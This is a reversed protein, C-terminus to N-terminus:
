TAELLMRVESRLAAVTERRGPKGFRCAGAQWGLRHGIRAHLLPLPTHPPATELLRTLAPLATLYDCGGAPFRAGMRRDFASSVAAPSPLDMTVRSLVEADARWEPDAMLAPLDRALTQRLRHTLAEGTPSLGRLTLLASRGTVPNARTGMRVVSLGSHRWFALLGAQAGFSAGLWDHNQERAAHVIAAVLRAAFGRRRWAAAVAIRSIRRGSTTLAEPTGAHAALSQALQHGRIRREGTGIRAALDERIGGEAVTVAVAYLAHDDRLAWIEVGPADLWLRLDNPRTRYHAGALLTMVSALLEPNHILADRDLREPSATPTARGETPATPEAPALPMLAQRLFPELADQASWRVPEHLELRQWGPRDRDLVEGFSLDLGLGTGEYGEATSALVARPYHRLMMRLQDAPLAAAEDVLLLDAEPRRRLIADPTLTRLRRRNGGRREFWRRFTDLASGRAATLLIRPAAPLRSLNAAAVGLVTSKGRGRGSRLVLTAASGAHDCLAEIAKLARRQDATLPRAEDHRPWPADARLEPQRYEAPSLWGIGSHHAITHRLHRPFRTTFAEPGHPFPAFRALARDTAPAETFALPLRLILAGGGRLAGATLGLLDLDLGSAADILLASVDQGLLHRAERAPRSGDVRLLCEGLAQELRTLRPDVFTAPGAVILALRVGARHAADRLRLWDAVPDSTTPAGGLQKTPKTM